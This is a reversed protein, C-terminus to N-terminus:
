MSKDINFDKKNTESDFVVSYDVKNEDVFLTMDKVNYTYDLLSDIGMTVTDKKDVISVSQGYLHLVAFGALLILLTKKVM